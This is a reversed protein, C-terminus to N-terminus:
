LQLDDDRIPIGDYNSLENDVLQLGSSDNRIYMM